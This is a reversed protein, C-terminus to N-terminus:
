KVTTYSPYNGNGNADDVTCFDFNTSNEDVTEANAATGTCVDDTLHDEDVLMYNWIETLSTSETKEEMEELRDHFKNLLDNNIMTKDDDASMKFDDDHQDSSFPSNLVANCNLPDDVLFYDDIMHHLSPQTEGMYPMTFNSEAENDANGPDTFENSTISSGNHEYQVVQYDGDVDILEMSDGVSEICNDADYCEELKITGCRTYDSGTIRLYDEMLLYNTDLKKQPSVIKPKSAPKTCSKLGAAYAATDWIHKQDQHSHRLHKTLSQKTKVVKRCFTCIYYNEHTM